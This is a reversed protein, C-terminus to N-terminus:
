PDLLRGERGSKNELMALYSKYRWESVSGQAVAEVIACGPEKNHQCQRYQCRGLFPRMEIFCHDLNVTQNSTLAFTRIGPTDIAYGGVGLKLFSAFTTTHRGKYNIKSNEEVVQEIEPELCNVVTSKGVGSHGSFLSIGESLHVILRKLETNQTSNDNGQIRFVQYGLDEYHSVREICVQYFEESEREKLLDWKNFVLTTPVGVSEAVVLYRNVLGWSVKPQLFSAVVVLRDMNSALVHVRGTMAELRSILSKRPALKEIVCATLEDDNRADPIMEDLCCLVIDGVCVFNREGRKAQLYKKAVTAKFVQNTEVEGQMNDPSVFSYRKHVEVVRAPFFGKEILPRWSAPDLLFSDELDRSKAQKKKGRNIKEIKAYKDSDEENWKPM